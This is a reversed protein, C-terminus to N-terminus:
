RKIHALQKNTIKELEKSLLDSGHVRRGKKINLTEKPIDFTLMEEKFESSRKMEKGDQDYIASHGPCVSEGDNLWYWDAAVLWSRNEFSRATFHSYYPPRMSFPHNLPVKNCMPCFIISAGQLSLLRAPEFYNADLCIMVGLMLGKSQIPSFTSGQTFYDHYLYHKRQVGLLQGKEIVAASNYLKEGDRENFGIIATTRFSQIEILWDQFIMDDIEFSNSHALYEDSYYGTLFGEPFCLFDTQQRDAKELARYVQEKREQFTLKPTAQFASVRISPTNM